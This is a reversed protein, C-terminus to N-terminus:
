FYDILYSSYSLVIHYSSDSYVKASKGMKKLARFAKLLAIMEMRNNTIDKKVATYSGATDQLNRSLARDSLIRRVKIEPVSAM